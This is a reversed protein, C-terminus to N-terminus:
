PAHTLKQTSGLRCTQLVAVTRKDRLASDGKQKDECM